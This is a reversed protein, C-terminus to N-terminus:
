RGVERRPLRQLLRQRALREVLEPMANIPSGSLDRRGRDVVGRVIEERVHQAFEVTLRAVTDNVGPDHVSSQVRDGRGDAGALPAFM